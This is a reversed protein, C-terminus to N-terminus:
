PKTTPLVPITPNTLSPLSINTISFDKIFFGLVFNILFLALFVVILGIIAAIVHNRAAEVQDKEGRSTIWKVGGYILYFIAVIAALAFFLSIFGSLVGGISGGEKGGLQCIVKFVGANECPNISMPVQAYALPTIFIYSFTSLVSLVLKGMLMIIFM